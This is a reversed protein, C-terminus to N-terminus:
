TLHFGDLLLRLQSTEQVMGESATSTREAMAANQRTGEDITAVAGNVSQLAAAQERAADEIAKLRSRIEFIGSIIFKMDERAEKMISVGQSVQVQSAGTLGRVDRSAVRARNALERIQQALVKFGNGAGAARAAEVATNLALINTQIAVADMIDTIKNIAETSREIEAMSENARDIMGGFHQISELCNAVFNNAESVRSATSSVTATIQEIAAATKEVSASQRETRLALEGSAASIEQTVVDINYATDSAVKLTTRLAHLAANLNDRLPLYPEPVNSKMDRALNQEAIEQLVSGFSEAVFVQEKSIAEDRLTARSKEAEALYVSITLDMEFLVAKCLSSIKHSLKKSVMNKKDFLGGGPLASAVIAHILHDLVLAYGGIYWRPELGIKAHISGIQKVNQAYELGFSASSINKWHEQQAAKAQEIHTESQFFMSTEPTRRVQTYFGDLAQPLESDIITKISRIAECDAETLGMFQRRCELDSLNQGDSVHTTPTIITM